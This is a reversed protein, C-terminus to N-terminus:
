AASKFLVRRFSVIGSMVSHQLEVSSCNTTPASCHFQYVHRLKVTETTSEPMPLTLFHRVQLKEQPSMVPHQKVEVCSKSACKVIALPVLYPLVAVPHIQFIDACMCFQLSDTMCHNSFLFLIDQAWGKSPDCGGMGLVIKLCCMNIM